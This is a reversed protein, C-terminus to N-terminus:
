LLVLVSGGVGLVVAVTRGRTLPEALFIAALVVIFVTSTQNLVSAVSVPAWKFGGLWFLMAVYTGLVSAPILTRWVDRRGLVGLVEARAAGGPDLGILPKLTVWFLLAVVGALLRVLTVEVLDGSALAPKALVVGSAMAAIGALGFAVGVARERPDLPAPPAETQPDAQTDIPAAVSAAPAEAPEAPAAVEPQEPIRETVTLLVGGVVLAGGALFAAPVPEHLVVVSLVVITPAYICDVVALLSAGLRRLAMFILTDSAAIGLVGSFLLRAWDAQSRQLPLETFGGLLLAGLTLGLLVAAVTNKFLNMALPTVAESRKFLIVSVSWTLAALLACAEGLVAVEEHPAV